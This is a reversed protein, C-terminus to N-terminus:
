RQGVRVARKIMEMEYTTVRMTEWWGRNAAIMWQKMGETILGQICHVRLLLGVRGRNDTLRLWWNDLARMLGAKLGVALAPMVVTM